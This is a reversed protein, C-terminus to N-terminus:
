PSKQEKYGARRLRNREIPRPAIGGILLQLAVDRATMPSTAQTYPNFIRQYATLQPTGGYLQEALISLGSRSRPYNYGTFQDKRALAALLAGATPSLLGAPEYAKKYGGTSFEKAAEAIQAPTQFIAAAAPNSAYVIGPRDKQGLIPGTKFYGEFWSPIPVGFDQAAQTQAQAALHASADAQFPHTAVFRGAYRTSGKVWPYLFLVRRILDQEAPGLRGYDIINENAERFVRVKAETHSKNTLLDHIEDKTKFGEKAAQHLFSARRFSRDVVLGWKTGLFQAAKAGPALNEDSLLSTSIGEGLGADILLADRSGLTANLRAARTVNKVAWPGQQIVNLAVNGLINPIAYSPKAYLLAIREANNIGDNVALALRTGKNQGIGVLSRPINEKYLLRQDIWKIGKVKTAEGVDPHLWNQITEAARKRLPLDIGENELKAMADKVEPPFPKNKLWVPRIPIFNEGAKGAPKEDRAFRILNKRRGIVDLLKNAELLSKGLAQPANTPAIGAELSTGEYPKLSGPNKAFGIAKTSGLQAQYRVSKPVQAYSIYYGELNKFLEPVAQPVTIGRRTSAKSLRANRRVQMQHLRTKAESLAGGLLESKSSRAATGPEQIRHVMSRKPAKAENAVSKDFRKQLDAVTKLQYVMRKPIPLSKAPLQGYVGRGVRNKAGVVAEGGILGAEQLGQTRLDSVRRGEEFVRSLHEEGPAIRPVGTPSELYPKSSELEGLYKTLSKQIRASKTASLAAQAHAIRDELPVGDIAVLMATRQGKNLGKAAHVLHEAPQRALMEEIRRNLHLEKGVRNVLQPGVRPEPHKQQLVDRAKQVQRTLTARSYTGVPVKQGEYTLVRPEVPPKKLAARAIEAATGGERAVKGLAGVRAATGAGASALALLDLATFGPHRLPHRLDSVTGTVTPAVVRSYTRPVELKPHVSAGPIGVLGGYNRVDHGVAKGAQFLGGPTHIAVAELDKLGQGLIHGFGGAAKKVAPPSPAPHGTYRQRGTTRTRTGLYRQRPM